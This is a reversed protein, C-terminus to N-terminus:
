PPILMRRASTVLKKTSFFLTRKLDPGLTSNQVSIFGTKHSQDAFLLSLFSILAPTRSPQLQFIKNRPFLNLFIDVAPKTALTISGPNWSPSRKSSKNEVQEKWIYDGRV